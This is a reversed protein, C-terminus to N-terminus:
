ADFSYQRFYKLKTNYAEVDLEILEMKVYVQLFVLNSELSSRAWVILIHELLKIISSSDIIINWSFRM